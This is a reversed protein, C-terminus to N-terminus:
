GSSQQRGSRSWAERERELSVAQWHEKAEAIERERRAERKKDTQKASFAYFSYYEKKVQKSFKKLHEKVAAAEQAGAWSRQHWLIASAIPGSTPKKIAIGGIGGLEFADPNASAVEALAVHLAKAEALVRAEEEALVEALAKAEASLPEEEEAKEKEEAELKRMLRAFDGCTSCTGRCCPCNGSWGAALVQRSGKVHPETFEIEHQPCMIKKPKTAKNLDIVKFNKPNKPQQPEKLNSKKLQKGAMIESKTANLSSVEFSIHYM